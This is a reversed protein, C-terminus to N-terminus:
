TRGKAHSLTSTKTVIFTNGGVAAVAPLLLEASRNEILVNERKLRTQDGGKEKKEM